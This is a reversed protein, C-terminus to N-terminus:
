SFGQSSTLSLCVRGTLYLSGLLDETAACTGLPTIRAIQNKRWAFGERISCMDWTFPHSAQLSIQTVGLTKLVAQIVMEAQAPHAAWSGSGCAVRQMSLRLCQLLPHGSSSFFFLKLSVLLPFFFRFLVVNIHYGMRRISRSCIKSLSPPTLHWHRHDLFSVGKLYCAVIHSHQNKFNIKLSPWYSTASGDIRM